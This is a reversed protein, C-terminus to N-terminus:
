HRYSTQAKQQNRQPWKATAKQLMMWETGFLSFVACNKFM